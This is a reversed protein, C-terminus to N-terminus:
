LVADLYIMSDILPDVNLNFDLGSLDLKFTPSVNSNSLPSKTSAVIVIPLTLWSVSSTSIFLKGDLAQPTSALPM